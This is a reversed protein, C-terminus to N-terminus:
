VRERFVLYRMGLFNLITMVAAVAIWTVTVPFELYDVLYGITLASTALLSLQLAVFRFFMRFGSPQTQFTWRANWHYSWLTGAAYGAAQALAARVPLAPLISFLIIFVLYCLLTNSVGVLLFRTFERHEGIGAIRLLRKWLTM